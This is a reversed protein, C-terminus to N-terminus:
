PDRSISDWPRFRNVVKSGVMMLELGRTWDEKKVDTGLRYESYVWRIHHYQKHLEVCREFTSDEEDDPEFTVPISCKLPQNIHILKVDKLLTLSRLLGSWAGNAPAILDLEDFEVTKITISHRAIFKQVDGAHILTKTLRFVTISPLWVTSLLNGLFNEFGEINFNALWLVRLNALTKYPRVWNKAIWGKPWRTDRSLNRM